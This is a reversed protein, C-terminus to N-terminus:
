NIEFFDMVWAQLYNKRTLRDVLNSRVHLENPRVFLTSLFIYTDAFVKFAKESVQKKSQCHCKLPWYEWNNLSSWAVETHINAPTTHKRKIYVLYTLQLHFCNFWLADYSNYIFTWRQTQREWTFIYKINWTLPLAWDVRRTLSLM